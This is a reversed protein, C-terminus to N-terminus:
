ASLREVVADAEQPTRLHILKVNELREFQERYRVRRDHFTDWAWRIPHERSLWDRLRERNGTGPWLEQRDVVRKISRWLVRRMVVSREYDLWVVHSVRPLYIPRVTAYNGALVWSERATAEAVRRKFEDPDHSNLDHWGPQWNIADLEIFPIGLRDSLHKGLTSKGSGSTGVVSIRM